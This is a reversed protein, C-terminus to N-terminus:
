ESVVRVDPIRIFSFADIVVNEVRETTVQQNLSFWLPIIPMEEVIIDEAALYSSIGEDISPAANGEAILDDVEQNTFGTNNSSGGTAHLPELYNQPSPYDMVWGLRFPGNVPGEAKQDLLGLYEAFEFSEFVISDIPIGLNQSWQNSMAEIWEEHGGDNNFWITLEGEYGGAEQFKQQALDPDFVCFQCADERSGAVVPSIVSAAPTRTGFFIAETIAERDIALSFAQRLEKSQFQDVWLPFGIYSFSSSPSEIFREGFETRGAEIQASPVDGIDLNNALVDNYSVDLDAYIRFEVADAQGPPGAYEDYRVVRVFQDHEWAGDMMYPGNGVPAENFAAPDDYFSEPLPYFANYGVTLPFQSFPASLTVTFETDSVVELGSLTATADPTGEAPNLEDYGEINAFFYNNAGAFEANAANASYNWADVFSNATVPTGDHFTWGENLTVTWVTQDETSIDAAVVNSPESTVPDYQVLATFVAQLVQGGCTENDNQPILSEPECISISFEGGTTEEGAPSTPTAGTEPGEDGGCSVAVLGLALVLAIWASTRRSSGVM